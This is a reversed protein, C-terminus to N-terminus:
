NFKASRRKDESGFTVCPLLRSQLLGVENAAIEGILSKWLISHSLVVGWLMM